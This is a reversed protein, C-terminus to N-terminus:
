TACWPVVADKYDRIECYFDSVKLLPNQSEHPCRRGSALAKIQARNVEKDTIM